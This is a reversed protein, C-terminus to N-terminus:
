ILYTCPSWQWCLFRECRHLYSISMTPCGGGSVTDSPLCVKRDDRCTNSSLPHCKFVVRVTETVPQRKHIPYLTLLEKGLETRSESDPFHHPASDAFQHFHIL